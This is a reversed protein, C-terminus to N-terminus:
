RGAEKIVFSHDPFHRHLVMQAEEAAVFTHFRGPLDAHTTADRIYFPNLAAITAPTTM